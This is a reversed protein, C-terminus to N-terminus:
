STAVGALLHWWRSPKEPAYWDTTRWRHEVRTCVLRTKARSAMVHLVRLEEALRASDSTSRFDPIHGEEIGVIYVIDFEQGKGAHGSLLHLGPSVPADSDQAARCAAVAQAVTVGAEIQERLMALAGSLHDSAETADIALDSRCLEALRELQAEPGIQRAAAERVHRQLLVVIEPQHTDLQWNQFAIGGEDLAGILEKLRTTRRAVVGVTVDPQAELQQRISAVLASAEEDPDGTVLLEVGADDSWREPNACRLRTTGLETALANVAALVPPSSRYSVDLEVSEQVVAHIAAFVLDPEAGAFAYIGQAPDGAYTTRGAGIAQVMGFQFLSLDQVEDVLVVAFHEHYLQAVRPDDLLRAGYRILDNYDIHRAERLAMEYRLAQTNDAVTLRRLVEDDDWLGLKANSLAIDAAQSNKYDIKAASRFRDLQVREPFAQQPDIGLVKGHARLLRGALGHFNSVAVSTRERASMVQRLRANLNDRAKNSFTLALVKRPSAVHGARILGAARDALAHTKGCGAPAVVLVDAVGLERLKQVPDAEPDTGTM